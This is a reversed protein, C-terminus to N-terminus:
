IVNLYLIFTGTLVIEIDSGRNDKFGLIQEEYTGSMLLRKQDDFSGLFTITRTLVGDPVLNPAITEFTVSAHLDVAVDDVFTVPLKEQSFYLSDNSQSNDIEGELPSDNTIKLVFPIQGFNSPIRAILDGNDRYMTGVHEGVPIGFEFPHKKLYVIDGVDVKGDENLDMKNLNVGTRGLVANHIEQETVAECPSITLPNSTLLLTLVLTLFLDWTIIRKSHVPKKTSKMYCEGNKSDFDGVVLSMRNEM